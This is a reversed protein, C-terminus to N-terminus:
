LVIPTKTLKGCLTNIKLSWNQVTRLIYMNKTFKFLLFTNFEINTLPIRSRQNQFNRNYYYPM